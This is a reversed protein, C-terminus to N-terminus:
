GLSEADRYGGSCYPSTRLPLPGAKWGVGRSDPVDAQVRPVQDYDANAKRVAVARNATAFFMAGGNAFCAAHRRFRTRRGGCLASKVGSKGGDCYKSWM